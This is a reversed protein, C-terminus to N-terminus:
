LTSARDPKETLYLMAMKPIKSSLEKDIEENFLIKAM